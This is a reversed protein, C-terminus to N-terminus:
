QFRASTNQRPRGTDTNLPLNECLTKFGNVNCASGGATIETQHFTGTRSNGDSTQIHGNRILPLGNKFGVTTELLKVNRGRIETGHARASSKTSSCIFNKSHYGLTHDMTYMLNHNPQRPQEKATSLRTVM